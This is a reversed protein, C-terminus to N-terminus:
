GLRSQATRRQAPLQLARADARGGIATGRLAQPWSSVQYILSRDVPQRRQLRFDSMLRTQEPHNAGCGPAFLWRQGSPQMVISYNLRRGVRSGSRM